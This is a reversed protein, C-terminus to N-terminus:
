VRPYTVHPVRGERILVRLANNVQESTRFWDCVDTDLTVSCQIKAFERGIPKANSFDIEEDLPDYTDDDFMFGDRLIDRGSVYSRIEAPTARRASIIWLEDDNRITYAVALVHGAPTEGVMLFRQEYESHRYDPESRSLRDDLMERAEEFSVGHKQLNAAAKKWHWHVYKPDEM